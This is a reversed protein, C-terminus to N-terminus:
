PGRGGRLGYTLILRAPKEIDPFTVRVLLNVVILAVVLIFWTPLFMGFTQRASKILALKDAQSLSQWGPISSRRFSIWM